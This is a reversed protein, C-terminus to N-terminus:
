LLAKVELLFIGVTLSRQIIGRLLVAKIDDVFQQLV